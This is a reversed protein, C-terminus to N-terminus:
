GLLILSVPVLLVAVAACGWVRGQRAIIAIISVVIGIPVTIFSAFFSFGTLFKGWQAVDPVCVVDRAEGGHCSTLWSLFLGLIFIAPLSATVAFGIIGLIKNEKPNVVNQNLPPAIPFNENTSM